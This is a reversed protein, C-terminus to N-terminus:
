DFIFIRNSAQVFQRASSTGFIVFSTSPSNVVVSGSAITQKSGSVSFDASASISVSGNLTIAMTGSVTFDAPSDITISGNAIQLATGSLTIESSGTISIGSFSNNVTITEEYTIGTSADFLWREFTTGNPLAPSFVFVGSSDVTLTSGDVVLPVTITDEDVVAFPANYALSEFTLNAGYLTIIQRDFTNTRDYFVGSAYANSRDFFATM